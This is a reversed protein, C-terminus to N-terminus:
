CRTVRRPAATAHHVELGGSRRQQGRRGPRAPRPFCHPVCRLPKRPAGTLLRSMVVGGRPECEDVSEHDERRQGFGQVPAAIRPHWDPAEVLPAETVDGGVGQPFDGPVGGSQIRDRKGGVRPQEQAGRHPTAAAAGLLRLGAGESPAALRSRRQKEAARGARSFAEGRLGHRLFQFPRKVGDARVVQECRRSRPPGRQLLLHRLGQAQARPPPADEDDLVGVEQQRGVRRSWEAAAGSRRERAGHHVERPTVSADDQQDGAHQMTVGVCHHLRVEGQHQPVALEVSFGTCTHPPLREELGNPLGGLSHVDIGQRLPREVAPLNQPSSSHRLCQRALLRDRPVLVEELLGENRGADRRRRKHALVGADRGSVGVRLRRRWKELLREGQCFLKGVVLAVKRRKRGYPLLKVLYLCAEVEIELRSARRRERILLLGVLDLLADAM